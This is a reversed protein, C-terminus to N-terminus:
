VLEVDIKLFLALAKVVDRVTKLEKAEDPLTINFEDELAFLLNIGDFSDIGLEELTHDLTITDAAIKQTRAIVDIIRKELPQDM